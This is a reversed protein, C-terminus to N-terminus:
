VHRNPGQQAWGEQRWSALRASPDRRATCVRWPVSTDDSYGDAPVDVMM